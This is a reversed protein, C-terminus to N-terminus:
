LLYNDFWKKTLAIMENREEPAYFAHDANKIFKLDKPSNANDFYLQSSATNIISDKEGHIFLIPAQINKILAPLNYHDFDKWFDGFMEVKKEQATIRNVTTRVSIGDPNYGPGFLKKLSKHPESVSGLYVIAKVNKPQFATIVATGLSMGVLGFRLNDTTPQNQVFTLINKLDSVLKSLTTHSYTGESEGCGAFDFRYIQYGNSALHNALNDFMGYEHKSAGFGHVLVITPYKDHIITPLDRLGALKEGTNNHIFIKESKTSLFMHDKVLYNISNILALAAFAMIIAGSIRNVIRLSTPTFKNRVLSVGGCLLVWWVASGCITGIVITTAAGTSTAANALGLGAFIAVFALITMPNTLTLLLTSIFDGVLNGQKDPASKEAPQALFTKVGLYGLFLGGGVGFWLQQGVLIQSISTLGYAAIAGYIGDACAAGLGSFLGSWLGSSLTRRICLVAIPGVPAAISFGIVFGKLLFASYM